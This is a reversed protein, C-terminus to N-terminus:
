RVADRIRKFDFDSLGYSLGLSRDWQDCIWTCRPLHLTHVLNDLLEWIPFM